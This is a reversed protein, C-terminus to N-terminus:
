LFLRGAHIFKPTTRAALRDAVQKLCAAQTRAAAVARAPDILTFAVQQGPRLQALAPLDASIVTAIKAYGGTTQHDALMVIPQGSSSVQVSGEVIGDSLIDSGHVTEIVPGQLKCAMRNCDATLQYSGHTFTQQGAPTFAEWQPGPVARLLPLRRNQEWRWLRAGTRAAADGLPHDAKCRHITKWWATASDGPMAVPLVDGKCLRRGQFGGLHCALDTSRSRRVVPVLIGGWVALYSRLGEKAMGIKLVSGAPAFLPAFFPVPQGDLQAPAEAGTLAFVTAIEFRLEPGRLTTELVADGAANGVLLNALRASYSDAAGCSRYGDAASGSRGLDQVTTLPGPDLICISM